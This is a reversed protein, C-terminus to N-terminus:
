NDDGGILEFEQDLIINNPYEETYVFEDGQFEVTLVDNVKYTSQCIELIPKIIIIRDGREAKSKQKRSYAM